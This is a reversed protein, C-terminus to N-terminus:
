GGLEQVEESGLVVFGGRKADELPGGVVGIECGMGGEVVFDKALQALSAGEM